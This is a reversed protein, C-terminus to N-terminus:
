KKHARLHSKLGFESKCERGCEKCVLPNSEEKKPETTSQPAGLESEPAEGVPRFNKHYKNMTDPLDYVKGEKWLRGDVFCNRLCIYEM